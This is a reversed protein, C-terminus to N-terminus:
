DEDGRGESKRGEESSSRSGRVCEGGTSADTTDSAVDAHGGSVLSNGLALSVRVLVAFAADSLISRRCNYRRWRVPVVVGVLRRSTRRRRRAIVAGSLDAESPSRIDWSVIDDVSNSGRSAVDIVPRGPSRADVDSTGFEAGHEPTYLIVNGSIEFAEDAVAIDVITDSKGHVFDILVSLGAHVGSVASLQPTLIQQRKAKLLSIADTSRGGGTCWITDWPDM